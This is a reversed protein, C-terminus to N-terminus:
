GEKTLIPIDAGRSFAIWGGTTHGAVVAAGAVIADSTGLVIDAGVPTALAYEVIAIIVIDARFIQTRPISIAIVAGRWIPDWAISASWPTALFAGAYTGGSAIGEGTSVISTAVGTCTRRALFADVRKTDGGGAARGVVSL